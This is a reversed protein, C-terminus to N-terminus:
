KREKPQALVQAVTTRLKSWQDPERGQMIAKQEREITERHHQQVSLIM